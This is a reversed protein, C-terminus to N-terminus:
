KKICLRELDCGKCREASPRAPCEGSIGLHALAFDYKVPDDPDLSRLSGTVEVAM